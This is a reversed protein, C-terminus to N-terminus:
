QNAPPATGRSDTYWSMNVVQDGELTIWATQQAHRDFVAVEHWGEQSSVHPLAPARFVSRIQRQQPFAHLRWGIIGSGEVSGATEIGIEVRSKPTSYEYWSTGHSDTRTRPPPGFKATAQELTMEPQFGGFVGMDLIDGLGFREAVHLETSQGFVRVSKLPPAAEVERVEWATRTCAACVSLVIVWVVIGRM